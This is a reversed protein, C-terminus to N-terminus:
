ESELLPEVHQLWACDPDLTVQGYTREGPEGCLVWLYYMQHGPAGVVPHYGRPIVVTDGNRVLLTANLAQERQPPDYVRQIAFGTQPKMLFFYIEEYPMERPADRTDHKHPPFSTWGGPRNLTEGVILREIPHDGETGMYIKRRWMGAGHHTQVATAAPFLLPQGDFGDSAPAASIALDIGAKGGTVTYTCRAPLYLMTPADSFPDRRTGLEYSGKGNVVVKGSGQLLALTEEHNGTEHQWSEEPGPLWLRGFHLWRLPSNTPDCIHNYGTKLSTAPFLLQPETSM